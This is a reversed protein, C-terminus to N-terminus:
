NSPLANRERQKLRSARRAQAAFAVLAVIFSAASAPEPVANAKSPEAFTLYPNPFEMRGFNRQWILFDNGNIAKDFNGDVVWLYPEAKLNAGLSSKWRNLDLTNVASDLNYDGMSVHREIAVTDIYTMTVARSESCTLIALAIVTLHCLTKM